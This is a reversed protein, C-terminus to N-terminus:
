LVKEQDSNRANIMNQRKCIINGDVAKDIERNTPGPAQLQQPLQEMNLRLLKSHLEQCQKEVLVLWGLFGASGNGPGPAGSNAVTTAHNPGGPGTAVTAPFSTPTPFGGHENGPAGGPGQGPGAQGGQLNGILGWEAQNM